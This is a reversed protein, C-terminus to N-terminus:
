ERTIFEDTNMLARAVAIWSAAEASSTENPQGAGVVLDAASPDDTFRQRQSQQFARVTTLEALQPERAFCRLFAARIRTDALDESTRPSDSLLRWGLRQALEFIAQDNAMTLAQLPTNSRPRRTCVSQFDPSDFTSLMPYPASRFFMTYLARRFRNEGKEPTWAKASQTFSYVGDPQPPRVSPGGIRNTVQEAASLAVDRVVEADLRLRNQRALLINLPDKAASEDMVSSQRYTASTVILRHLRKLSWGGVMFEHSLWDLMEPHSPPTGQAGFDNETEVLGRGFFRMWVRNVTVRATLPNDPRVLWRALDLRTRRDKAVPQTVSAFVAPVDPQIVGLAKDPRLFDGRELLYTERPKPRERMVMANVAAGMGLHERAQQLASKAARLPEDQAVFASDIMQKQEPTRKDATLRLAARLADEQRLSPVEACWELRFRGVGYNANLEHRLVITLPKGGADVSTNMAFTAVHEANMQVTSDKAVNIAWGTKADSDLLGSVAYGSQQHSAIARSFTLREEDRNVEVSTLLFNGNKALGPGMRPLSPHTMVRLQLGGIKANEPLPETLLTYTEHDAGSSALLSGDDLSELKAKTAEAHHIILPQWTLTEPPLESSSALTEMEWTTQRQKKSAELKQV